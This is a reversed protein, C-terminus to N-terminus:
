ASSRQARLARKKAQAALGAKRAGARRGHPGSDLGCLVCTYPDPRTVARPWKQRGCVQCRVQWVRAREHVACGCVPCGLVKRAEATMM